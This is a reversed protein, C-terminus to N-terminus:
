GQNSGTYKYGSNGRNLQETDNTSTSTTNKKEQAEIDMDGTNEQGQTNSVVGDRVSEPHKHNRLMLKMQVSYVSTLSSFNILDALMSQFTFIIIM